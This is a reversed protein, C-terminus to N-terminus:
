GHSRSRVQAAAIEDSEHVWIAYREVGREAYARETEDLPGDLDDRGRPLVANNLFEREPLRVFVAIAAGDSEIVEAEPSGSALLAM